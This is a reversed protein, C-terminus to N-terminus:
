KRAAADTPTARTELFEVRAALEKVANILAYTLASSDLMRYDTVKAGDIYGERQSVLEPMPGEADQALLGVYENAVLAAHDSPAPVDETPAHLSANGKFSYRIPNLQKLEALGHTYLGHVNKVRADSSAVWSGGTPKYAESYVFFSLDHRYVTIAMRGSQTDNFGRLSFNSGVDGTGEPTDDGLLAAWRYVGNIAGYVTSTAGGTSTNKNLFIQPAMPHDIQLRAMSPGHNAVMHPLGTTLTIRDTERTM